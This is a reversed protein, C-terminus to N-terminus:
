ETLETSPKERWTKWRCLQLLFQDHPSQPNQNRSSEHILSICKSRFLPFNSRAPRPIAPLQLYLSNIIRSMIQPHDRCLAKLAFTRWWIVCRKSSWNPVGGLNSFFQNLIATKQSFPGYHYKKHSECYIWPKWFFFWVYKAYKLSLTVSFLSFLLKFCFFTMFQYQQGM